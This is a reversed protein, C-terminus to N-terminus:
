IELGAVLEVDMVLAVPKEAQDLGWFCAYQGDGWGTTFAVLHPALQMSEDFGEDFEEEAPPVSPDAFCACGSSVPCGFMEGPELQAPDQDDTLAQEWRAVPVGQRFQIWALASRRRPEGEVEAWAVFVPYGGPAFDAAYANTRDGFPAGAFVRSNTLELTGAQVVAIVGTAPGEAFQLTVPTGSVMARSYDFAPQAPRGGPFRATLRSWDNISEAIQAGYVGLEAWGLGLDDLQSQLDQQAAPLRDGYGAYGVGNDLEIWFKTQGRRSDWESGYGTITPM